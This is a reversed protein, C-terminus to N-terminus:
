NKETTTVLQLQEFWSMNLPTSYRRELDRRFAENSRGVHRFDRGECVRKLREERTEALLKRIIELFTPVDMPKEVLAEVGATLARERQGFEGTIVVTPVFANTVTMRQFTKWGDVAGLNIDLVVLNITQSEFHQLAEASDHATLVDYGQAALLKRLSERVANDDDVVLIKPKM